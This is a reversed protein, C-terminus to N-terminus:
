QFPSTGRWLLSGGGDSGARGQDGLSLHKGASSDLDGELGCSDELDVLRFALGKGVVPREEKKSQIAQGRTSCGHPRGQGWPSDRWGSLAFCFDLDHPSQLWPQWM